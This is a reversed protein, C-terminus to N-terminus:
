QEVAEKLKPHCCNEESFPCPGHGVEPCSDCMRHQHACGSFFYLAAMYIMILLLITGWNHESLKM